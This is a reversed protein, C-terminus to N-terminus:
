QKEEDDSLRGVACSVFSKAKAGAAQLGEVSGIEPYGLKALQSVLQARLEDVDVSDSPVVTIQGQEIDVEVAAVGALARLQKRISNACGGCKINEVSIQISM